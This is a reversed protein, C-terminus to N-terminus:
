HKRNMLYLIRHTGPIRSKERIDFYPMFAAEFGAETYDSFIDERNSLLLKVKEDEKSPFEIILQPAIGNFYAALQPLPINKSIALHHILALATVLETRIRQHFAPRETNNFGSGASPNAIDLILPLINRIKEKKTQAHLHHICMFDFDTAIVQRNGEALIRSFYGNNAGLDLATGAETAALMNRFINEKTQLYDQGLITEDYYNSWTTGAKLDGTTRLMSELHQLLNLMKQKSFSVPKSHAKGKRSVSAPLFVHLYVGANFRSKFPLLSAATGAPVGDPHMTLWHHSPIGTYKELLLPFLFTECFQRYAIWPKAEDYWDFSLTDIFLPRGSHFQVNYPTADKLIMGHEMSIRMILLTLIGADRLQSGTWEYGYSIFHIPEPRLTKYWEGTHTLNENLETHPVLWQKATLAEYLGSQMLHDYRTAYVQNVQRCIINNAMFVFGSPDKYSGAIRESTEMPRKMVTIM